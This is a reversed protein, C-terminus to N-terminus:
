AAVAVLRLRAVSAAVVEVVRQIDEPRTFRGLSFRLTSRAQAPTLGMALLVHSPERSATHCASGSSVAIGRLDLALLLSNSNVGEFCVNLTNGVSHELPTNLKLNPVRAVLLEWLQDRLKKVSEWEEPAQCLELAKALGIICAVNETGARAGGEQGGGLMWSQWPAEKRRYLVGAGKPGYFKHATFTIYDAGWERPTVPGKGCMQTADSHFAIGHERAIRGVERVPQLAGTENNAAMVSILATNARLAREVASPDLRGDGGVPLVTVDMLGRAQLELCVNLIAPHEIATTIVHPRPTRLASLLVLNNAETCGSTFVVEREEVGLLTAVQARSYQLVRAARQGEHHISSANGHVDSLYPLMAELVRADLPTSANYDLYIRQSM